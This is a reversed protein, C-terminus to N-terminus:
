LQVTRSWFFDTDFEECGALALLIFWDCFMLARIATGFLLPVLIPQNTVLM